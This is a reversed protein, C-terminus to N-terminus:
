LEDGCVDCIMQGRENGQASPHSCYGCEDHALVGFGDHDDIWKGCKPCQSQPTDSNNM